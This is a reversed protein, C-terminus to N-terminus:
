MYIWVPILFHELPILIDLFPSVLKLTHFFEKFFPLGVVKPLVSQGHRAKVPGVGPGPGARPSSPGPRALGARKVVRTQREM